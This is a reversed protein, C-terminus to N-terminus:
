WVSFTPGGCRRLGLRAGGSDCSRKSGFFFHVGPGDPSCPLKRTRRFFFVFVIAREESAYGDNSPKCVLPYWIWSCKKGGM